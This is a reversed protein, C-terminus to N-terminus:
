LGRRDPPPGEGAEVPEGPQKDHRGTNHMLVGIDIASFKTTDAFQMYKEVISELYENIEPFKSLDLGTDRETGSLTM